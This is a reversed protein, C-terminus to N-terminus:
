LSKHSLHHPMESPHYRSPRISSRIIQSRRLISHGQGVLKRSRFDAFLAALPVDCVDVTSNWGAVDSMRGPAMFSSAGDDLSERKPRKREISNDEAQSASDVDEKKRKIGSAKNADTTPTKLSSPGALPPLPSTDTAGSDLPAPLVLDYDSGFGANSQSGFPPLSAQSPPSSGDFNSPAESDDQSTSASALM